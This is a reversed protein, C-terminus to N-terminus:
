KIKNDLSKKMHHKVTDRLHNHGRLWRNRQKIFCRSNRYKDFCCQRVEPLSFHNRAQLLPNSQCLFDISPWSLAMLNVKHLFTVRFWFRNAKNLWILGKLTSKDIFLTIKKRWNWAKAWIQPQENTSALALFRMLTLSTKASITRSIFKLFLELSRSIM